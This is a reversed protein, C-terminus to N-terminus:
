KDRRSEVKILYQRLEKMKEAWENEHHRAIESNPKAKLRDDWKAWNELAQQYALKVIDYDTITKFKKM